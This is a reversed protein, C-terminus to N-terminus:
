PARSLAHTSSVKSGPGGVSVATSGACPLMSPPVAIVSEPVFRVESALTEMPPNAAVATTTVGYSVIVQVVGKATAGPATSTTTTVARPETM